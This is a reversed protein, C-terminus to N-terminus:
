KARPFGCLSSLLLSRFAGSVKGRSLRKVRLIVSYDIAGTCYVGINKVAKM